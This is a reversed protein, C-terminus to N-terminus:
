MIPASMPFGCCIMRVVRACAAGQPRIGGTYYMGMKSSRGWVRCSLTQYLLWRNLLLNMAEDPTKVVVTNLLHDWQRTLAQWATEINKIKQYRQALQLAEERDAGQGVLFTVEKTEGPALWLLIQMAACPDLGPEIQASLGVRGLAAPHRYSGMRGLFETRDTTLGHPERTATLFATRQGFEANFPNCVLLTHCSTDFEPILYPAMAERTTGLVWEAYYIATVRRTRRWTNELRLQVIKVPADPAAFCRLRQKLGHSNHEFISYGIGHRVIYPAEAGAPLPTPSWYHGVEEDRLYLAEGPTDTVPDNSWPTLRNEGSNLAWTYGSGAESITFGFEPNAIVNIWPSPTQQGPELYIVYERGDPSFGGLANDFLLDGPRELPPVLLEDEPPSLMATFSPLRTPRRQLVRLQDMLEGQHANLIVRAATELLVRHADMMQDARLVFIGGRRNLWIDDGRRNLLQYLRNHLKQSYSTDQLNLIVLDIKIGRKRWYAHARLLESVLTIDEQNDIRVTLIPYDGSIAYPWLSEQGDQNAALTALDARLAANPYLLSSLLQQFFMIERTTLNQQNLERESSFRAQEFVGEVRHWEQYRQALSIAEQRSEAALTIFAMRTSMRPESFPFHVEQAKTLPELHIEHSISMIPDLPAGVFGTLGTKGKIAAPSRLTGGRGIFHSRMTEFHCVEEVEPDAVLLHMLFIPQEDTSRLRRRFLLANLEPLFESEVFLKNYAPHRQDASQPSLVVEGYSTLRLHRPRNSHNILTLRRIEVDDDPAITVAIRLSIDHDRRQFEAKHPFFLVEQTEPQSAVPQFGASWCEGSELDQVYVWTGWDDLTSDPRWRTLAIEQWRSYGGGANTMLTCYRGNSLCHVQPLPTDVPVHWASTAPRPKGPPLLGIEGPHPTEIPAQRPIREQLLLEVSEVRPAAHFRSIMVEDQLYNALALMIMGQHHAYYSRVIGHEQGLSLRTETYDISEYFGYLGLMHVQELDAINKMVAQPQISLALLSAYPSIVLDESLGRKFGLGPVGFGRYQYNM